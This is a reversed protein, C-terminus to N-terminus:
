GEPRAATVIQPERWWPIRGPPSAGAALRSGMNVVGKAPYAVRPVHAPIRGHGDQVLGGNKQPSRKFRPTEWFVQGTASALRSPLAGDSVANTGM